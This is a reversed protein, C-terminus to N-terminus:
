ATVEVLEHLEHRPSASGTPAAGAPQADPTGTPHDLSLAASLAAFHEGARDDAVMVAVHRAGAAFYREIQGACQDAPGAVLHRAFAKPPIGYLSSLWRCGREAARDGPGVHAFVVVAPTVAAPDRGAEEAETALRQYGPALQDPEVFLPIWGDGTTAARRIAAPSSGGVWVPVTPASPLQRYPAGDCDPGGTAWAARIADIGADLLRGRDDFDVGAAEYEGQHSGAGVGLVFRGGTLTQLTLAQKALAAPSRLPVQVVCSGLAARETATAAVTLATFCELM